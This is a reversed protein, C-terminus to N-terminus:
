YGEEALSQAVDRVLTFVLRGIKAEAEIRGARGTSIEVAADAILDRVQQRFQETAVEYFLDLSEHHGIQHGGSLLDIYEAAEADIEERCRDDTGGGDYKIEAATASCPMTAYSM